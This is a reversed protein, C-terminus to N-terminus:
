VIVASTFELLAAGILIVTRIWPNIGLYPVLVRPLASLGQNIGDAILSIRVHRIWAFPVGCVALGLLAAIVTLAAIAPRRHSRISSGAWALAVALALLGMMRWFPAPKMLTGWRLTGYFALAGFALLRIGPRDRPQARAARDAAARDAARRGDRGGPSGVLVAAESSASM